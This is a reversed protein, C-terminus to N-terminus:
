PQQYNSSIEGFKFASARLAATVRDHADIKLFIQKVYSTVTHASIGLIRGIEPNTKGFTILELVESERTTLQSFSKLGEVVHCYRIHIAQLLAQMQWQFIDDYFEKPKGFCLIAYGRRHFPGFLPTLLADGVLDLANKVVQEHSTGVITEVSPMESLWMTRAVSFVYRIGPDNAPTSNDFFDTVRKPLNYSFHRTLTDYNYTGIPPIHHYSSAQRNVHGYFAGLLETVSGCKQITNIAAMFHDNSITPELGIMAHPASKSM